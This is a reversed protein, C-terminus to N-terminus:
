VRTKELFVESMYVGLGDLGVGRYVIRTKELFVESM